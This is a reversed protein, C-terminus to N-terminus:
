KGNGKQDPLYWLIMGGVLLIAGLVPEQVAFQGYHLTYYQNVDLGLWRQVYFHTFRDVLGTLFAVDFLILMLSWIRKTM